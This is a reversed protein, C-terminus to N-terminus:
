ICTNGARTASRKSVNLLGKKKLIFSSGTFVASTVALCLGIWFDRLAEDKTEPRYGDTTINTINATTISINALTTNEFLATTHSFNTSAGPAPTTAGLGTNNGVLNPLLSSLTAM